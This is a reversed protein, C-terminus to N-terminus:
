QQSRTSQERNKSDAEMKSKWVEIKKKVVESEATEGLLVLLRRLASLYRIAIKFDELRSTSLEYKQRYSNAAEELLQKVMRIHATYIPYGEERPDLKVLIEKLNLMNKSITAFRGELEVFSWRWKSNTGYSEKLSDVAFGLKCLLDWRQRYGYDSITELNKEYESYPVDIYSTVVEELYILAKYITKRAENLFGENKIGLLSLSLENMLLYYSVMNLNENALTLRKYSQGHEDKDLLTLMNKESLQIKEVISKYEKIKEYYRQKAEGSVKAM